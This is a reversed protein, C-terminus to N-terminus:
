TKHHRGTEVSLIRWWKKFVEINVQRARVALVDKLAHKVIDIDIARGQFRATAM